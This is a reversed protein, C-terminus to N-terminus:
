KKQEENESIEIQKKLVRFQHSFSTKNIIEQNRKNSAALRTSSQSLLPLFKPLIEKRTFVLSSLSNFIIHSTHYSAEQYRQRQWFSRCLYNNHEVGLLKWITISRAAAATCSKTTTKATLNFELEFIRFAPLLNSSSEFWFIDLIMSSYDFISKRTCNEEKESSKTHLCCWFIRWKVIKKREVQKRRTEKEDRRGKRTWRRGTQYAMKM